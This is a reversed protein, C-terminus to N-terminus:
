TDGGNVRMEHDESISAAIAIAERELRRFETAYRLVQSSAWRYLPEENEAGRFKATLYPHPVLFSGSWRRQKDSGDFKVVVGHAIDNRRLNYGRIQKTFDGIRAALDGPFGILGKIAETIMDLKANVPTNSNGWSRIVCYPYKPCILAIYVTVLEAQLAEWKTLASGVATLTMAPDADGKEPPPLITEPKTHM